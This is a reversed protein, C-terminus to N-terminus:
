HRTCDAVIKETGARNWFGYGVGVSKYKTSESITCDAPLKVTGALFEFGYRVEFSVFKTFESM